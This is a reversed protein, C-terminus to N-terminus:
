RKGTEQDRSVDDRSGRGRTEREAASAAAAAAAWQQGLSLLPRPGTTLMSSQGAEDEAEKDGDQPEQASGNVAKRRSQLRQELKM